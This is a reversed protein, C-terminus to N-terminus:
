AMGRELELRSLKSGLSYSDLCLKPNERFSTCEYGILGVKGNKVLIFAGDM